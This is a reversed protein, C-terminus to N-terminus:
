EDREKEEATERFETPSCGVASRFVRNFSAISNFGTDFAINTVPLNSEKLMKKAEEIRYDNLFDTVSCGFSMNVIRSLVHQKVRLLEAMKVRNFGMELYPQEEQMLKSIRSALQQEEDRLPQRHYSLKIVDETAFAETFVRFVSTLVLYIFTIKVIVSAFAIRAEPLYHMVRALDLAMLCLNLAILAVILWYKHLRRETNGDLTQFYRSLLATTLALILGGSTINVFVMAAPATICVELNVCLQGTDFLAYIAPVGVVFPVAVVLWFPLTPVEGRIAQVILLYSFAPLLTDSLSLAHSIKETILNFAPLLENASGLALLLFYFIPIVVLKPHRTTAILYFIVLICPALAVMHLAQILTFLLTNHAEM